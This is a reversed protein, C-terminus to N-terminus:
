DHGEDILEEADLEEGVFYYSVAESAVDRVAIAFAFDDRARELQAVHQAQKAEGPVDDGDYDDEDASNVVMLVPRFATFFSSQDEEKKVKQNTKKSHKVVVQFPQPIRLPPRGGGGCGRARVRKTPDQGSHWAADGGGGLSAFVDQGDSWVRKVMRQGHLFKNPAFSLTLDFGSDHDVFDARRLDEDAVKAMADAGADGWGQSPVIGDFPECRVDTLYELVEADKDTIAEVLDDHASLALLWFGPVGRPAPGCSSESRGDLYRALPEAEEASPEADGRVIAARRELLPRVRAHFRLEAERKEKILAEEEDDFSEQLTRLGDLRRQVAPHTMEEDMTTALLRAGGCRLWGAAVPRRAVRRGVVLMAALLDKMPLEDRAKASGTEM